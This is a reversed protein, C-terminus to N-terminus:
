LLVLAAPLLAGALFLGAILRRRRGFTLAMWLGLLTSITLGLAVALFVWKLAMANWPTRRAARVAAGEPDARRAAAPSAPKPAASLVQDKHVRALRVV